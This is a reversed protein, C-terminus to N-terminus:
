ELLFPSPLGAGGPGELPIDGDQSRGGGRLFDVGSSHGLAGAEPEQGEWGKQRSNEVVEVRGM